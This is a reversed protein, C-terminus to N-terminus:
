IKFTNVQKILTEAVKSFTQAGASIEELSATQEQTISSIEEAQAATEETISSIDEMKGVIDESSKALNDSISSVEEAQKSVTQAVKLIDKLAIGINEITVVGDDIEKVEKDMDTVVNNTMSQVEKVITTIKDTADASQGALKKVEEAVVAFGKGHEGARAAEIAANLALLNTQSAIGKILDVIQEIESGLEGLANATKATESATKRIQNIKNAAKEAETYGKQAEVETSDSMEVMNNANQNIAHIVRNMNNINDLSVSVSKAQEESGRALHSVSTAVQQSGQATQDASLSMEDAVAAIEKSSKAINSILNRTNEIFYAFGKYLEGIEDKSDNTEMEINFDNQGLKKSIITLHEIPKTIAVSFFLNFPIIIALIIISFIVITTGFTRQFENSLVEKSMATFMVGITKGTINKIPVYYSLYPRGVVMAEGEFSSNGILVKDVVKESLLTGVARKGAKQVTTSIRLDDKFITVAIGEDNGKVKDVFDANRNFINAAIVYGIINNNVNVPNVVVNVLADEEETKNVFNEKMGATPKRTMKVKNFLAQSEKLLDQKYFVEISTVSKKTSSANDILDKFSSLSEGKRSPNNKDALIKGNKDTIILIDTQDNVAKPIAVNQLVASNGSIIANKSADENAILDTSETLKFSQEKLLSELVRYNSKAANIASIQSLHMGSNFSAIVIPILVALITIIGILLIKYRIKLNKTFKM